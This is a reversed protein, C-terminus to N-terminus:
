PIGGKRGVAGCLRHAPEHCLVDGRDVLSRHLRTRIGEWRDNRPPCGGLPPLLWSGVQRTAVPFPLRSPISPSLRLFFVSFVRFADLDEPLPPHPTGVVTAGHLLHVGSCTTLSVRVRPADARHHLQQPIRRPDRRSPPPSGTRWGRDKRGEAGRNKERNTKGEKKIKGDKKSPNTSPDLWGVKQLGGPREGRRPPYGVGRNQGPDLRWFPNLFPDEIGKRGKPNTTPSCLRLVVHHPPSRTTHHLM